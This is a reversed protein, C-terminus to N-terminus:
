KVLLLNGKASTIDTTRRMTISNNQEESCLSPQDWLCLPSKESIIIIFKSIKKGGANEVYRGTPKYPIEDRFLNQFNKGQDCLFM